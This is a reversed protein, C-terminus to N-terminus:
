IAAVSLRLSFTRTATSPVPMMPEAIARLRTEAPSRVVTQSRDGVAVAGSDSAPASTAADGTSATWSACTTIVISGVAPTTLETIKAPPTACASASPATHACIPV